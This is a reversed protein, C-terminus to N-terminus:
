SIFELIVSDALFLGDETLALHGGDLTVLNQALLRNLTDGFVSALGVRYRSEFGDLDVGEKLRLGLMLHEGMAQRTDLRESFEAPNHGSTVAQTYRAPSKINRSRVGNVYSSAGAGLGLHDGNLWYLRNHRCQRGPQAYNSIEYRNYGRRTLTEITRRYMELQLDEDPLVLQGADFTIQFATNPEITLNYCSLHEPELALARDLNELWRQLTQGPLAFMLDLSLNDFGAGRARHVTQEVEDPTHIRELLRLEGPDFSQVGISIRNFGAERLRPLYDPRVTGPNAELTIECDASLSFNRRLATLLGTLQSAELTTPTGGGFFISTIEQEVGRSRSEIEGTLAEVYPRTDTDGMPHSNFDCYGCKHICFPIHLYLGFPVM